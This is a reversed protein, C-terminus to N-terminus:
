PLVIWGLVIAKTVPRLKSLGVMAIGAGLGVLAITLFPESKHEFWDIAPQEFYMWKKYFENM